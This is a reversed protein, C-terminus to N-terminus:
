SSVAGGTAAPLSVLFTSGEGVSSNVTISGGHAEALSKVIALGLGAGGTERSRSPDVRYFRQFVDTLHEPAIGPGTDRVAFEVAGPEADRVSLTVRGGSPTHTIANRLLNRLMQQLRARDAFIPRAEGIERELRVGRTAADREMSTLSAGAERVPDVMACHLRLEGVEALALDQLDDILRQLLQVEEQLSAIVAPSAAIMGDMLSEVTCRINTLPTRLEHAVDNTMAQRLRQARVVADAMTNFANGLTAIEDRGSIAVRQEVDGNAMRTAAVTLQRIPTLVRRSLLLTLLIASSAILGAVLALPRLAVGSAFGLAAANQVAISYLRGLHKGHSDVLEVGPMSGDTIIARQRAVVHRGNSDTVPVDLQWGTLAGASDVTFDSARVPLPAAGAIRGISDTLLLERGSIKAVSALRGRVSAFGSDGYHELLADRLPLLAVLEDNRRATRLVGVSLRSTFLTVGVISGCVLLATLATLRGRITMM